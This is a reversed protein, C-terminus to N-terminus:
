NIEREGAKKHQATWNMTWQTGGTCWSSFAAIHFPTSSSLKLPSMSFATNSADQEFQTLNRTHEPFPRQHALPSAPGGLGLSSTWLYSPSGGQLLELHPGTVWSSDM